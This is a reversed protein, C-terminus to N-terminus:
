HEESRPYSRGELERLAIASRQNSPLRDLACLLERLNPRESEPVALEQMLDDLPVERARRTEVRVSSRCANHAIAILWNHPRRPKAGAQLARYANLFTTQTVDEADAPNRLVALVYRYVDRVYHEYMREFARDRVDDALTAM